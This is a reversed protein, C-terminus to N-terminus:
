DEGRSHHQLWGIHQAVVDGVSKETTWKDFLGKQNRPSLARSSWQAQSPDTVALDIMKQVIYVCEDRVKARSAILKLHSLNHLPSKDRLLTEATYVMAKLEHDSLINRSIHLSSEITDKSMRMAGDANDLDDMASGATDEDGLEAKYVDM